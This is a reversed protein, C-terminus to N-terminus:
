EGAAEFLQKVWDKDRRSKDRLEKRGLKGIITRAAQQRETGSLLQLVRPVRDGANGFNLGQIMPEWNVTEPKLPSPVSMRGYGAATKAGIGDNQLADKLIDMATRVWEEPGTIALLYRGRASVFAVPTPSDWDAPPANDKGQYYQPHHVTMVDLDLPLKDGNPIWLADHFTLYGASEQDGFLIRHFAGITGDEKAKSWEPDELHKHAASAALGKLASGPIYPVGYTRHLALATELVSEAGLGVAMRGLVTAEATGTCPVLAQVSDRWRQFFRRYEASVAISDLKAFHEQRGPGRDDVDRLGKDLWLGANTGAEPELSKLVERRSGKDEM